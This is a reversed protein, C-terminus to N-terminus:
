GCAREIFAAIWEGAYQVGVKPDQTLSIRGRGQSGRAQFQSIALPTIPTQKEASQVSKGKRLANITNFNVALASNLADYAEETDEIGPIRINSPYYSADLVINSIPQKGIATVLASALEALEESVL